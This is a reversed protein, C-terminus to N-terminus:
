SNEESFDTPLKSGTSVVIPSSHFLTVKKFARSFAEPDGSYVPMASESIKFESYKKIIEKQSNEM